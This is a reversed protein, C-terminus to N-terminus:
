EFIEPTHGPPQRLLPPPAMIVGSNGVYELISYVEISNTTKTVNQILIRLSNMINIKIIVLGYFTTTLDNSEYIELSYTVPRVGGDNDLTCSITALDKDEVGDHVVSTRRQHHHHQHHHRNGTGSHREQDKPLRIACGTL